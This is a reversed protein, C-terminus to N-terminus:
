PVPDGGASHDIVPLQTAPVDGPPGDAAVQDAPHDALHDASDWIAVTINDHGGGDLAHAVLAAALDHSTKHDVELQAVLEALVPSPDAYRWLGDSCLLLRGPGEAVLRTLEPTPELSDAGLWRALSGGLEHDDTLATAEGQALWYARSDGVWAVDLLVQSGRCRAVAAVFTSSPPGGTSGAPTPVAVAQEQAAAAAAVLAEDLRTSPDAALKATLLGLATDVAAQSVLDSGPTSSVGDCVVIVAGGGHLQAIAVADENWAHRIGRDTIAVVTGSALEIHDRFAPQKRGCSGCYGDAAVAREGCAVCAPAPAAGLDAGCAECWKADESAPEGCGPCATM